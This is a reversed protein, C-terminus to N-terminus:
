EDKTNYTQQLSVSFTASMGKMLTDSVKALTVLSHPHITRCPLASICAPVRVSIQVSSSTQSAGYVFRCALSGVGYGVGLAKETWMPTTVPQRISM